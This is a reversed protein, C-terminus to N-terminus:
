KRRMSMSALYALGLLALSTPEPVASSGPSGIAPQDVDNLLVTAVAGSPNGVTSFVGLRVDYSQGGNLEADPYDAQGLFEDSQPGDFEDDLFLAVGDGGQGLGAGEYTGVQPVSSLAAGWIDIWNAVNAAGTTASGDVFIVSEGAAISAVGSMLDAVSFDASNDDYYLDGDTAATWATDGLNTVEFWDDTLNDGPENGPWIETVQLDFVALAPQSFVAAALAALLFRRM